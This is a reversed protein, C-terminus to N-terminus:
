AIAVASLTVRQAPATLRFTAADVSVVRLRPMHVRLSV